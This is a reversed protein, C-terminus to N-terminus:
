RERLLGLVPNPASLLIDQFLTHAYVLSRLYLGIQVANHAVKHAKVGIRILEASTSVIGTSPSAAVVEAEEELSGGRNSILLLYM